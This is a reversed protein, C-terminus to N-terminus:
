RSLRKLVGASARTLPVGPAGRALTRLLAAAEPTGIKELVEVVRVVRVQELRKHM